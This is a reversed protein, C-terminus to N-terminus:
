SQRRLQDFEKNEKMKFFGKLHPNNDMILRAYFSKYNNSFKFGSKDQHIGVDYEWRIINVIAEISYHDKGKNKLFSCRKLILDYIHPNDLHFQIFQNLRIIFGTEPQPFLELLEPPKWLKPKTM